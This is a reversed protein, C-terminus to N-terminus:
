ENNCSLEICTSRSSRMNFLEKRIGEAFRTAKSLRMTWVQNASLGTALPVEAKKHDAAEESLEVLMVALLQETKDWGSM